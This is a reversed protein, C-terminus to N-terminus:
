RVKLPVSPVNPVGRFTVSSVLASVLTSSESYLGFYRSRLSIGFYTM